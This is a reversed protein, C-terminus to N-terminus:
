YYPKEDHPQHVYVVKRRQRVFMWAIINLLAAVVSAWMLALFKRGLSLEIGYESYNKNLIHRIFIYTGMNTGVSILLSAFSLFALLGGVVNVFAFHLFWRIINVVLNLFTLVIGIILTIFMCRVLGNYFGIKDQLEEPLVINAVDDILSLVQNNEINDKLITKLNFTQIGGPSTCSSVSDKSTGICYSWLGINIYDPLGLQTLSISGVEPFVSSVSLKSLDLQASFIENIPYYNKTSGACAICALVLSALAFFLALTVAFFNRM